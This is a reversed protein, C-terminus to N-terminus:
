VAARWSSREGGPDRPDCRPSHAGAPRRDHPIGTVTGPYAPGRDPPVPPGQPSTAETCAESAVFPIRRLRTQIGARQHCPPGPMASEIAGRDERNPKKIASIKVLCPVGPRIRSDDSLVVKPARKGDLHTARFRFSSEEVPNAWFTTEMVDGVSLKSIKLKDAM